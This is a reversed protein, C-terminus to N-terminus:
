KIRKVSNQYSKREQVIKRFLVIIMGGLLVYVAGMLIEKTKSKSYAEFSTTEEFTKKGAYHVRGKIIYNGEKEPTFYFDFENTKSSDVREKESELIQVINGDKSVSGKFRADVEKEGTNKFLVEIPITEGASINEKTVIGLIKGEAKLAGQELIDFTKTSESYCELVSIDAWYQGLEMDRSSVRFSRTEELSPLIEEGTFSEEKVVNQQDKDRIKMDVTPEIIVNGNNEIELDFVIDDGKEVSDVNTKVVSCSTDQIDTIEASVDLDLASRVVGVAHGEQGEGLERTKVSIFGSYNGNPIDDSPRIYVDLQHPDSKSVSFNNESFNVWESIEGRKDLHIEVPDETDVSVTITDQAYGGRLVDDFELSAPSIGVNASSMFPSILIFLFVIGLLMFRGKM